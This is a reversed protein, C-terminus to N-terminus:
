GDARARILALELYGMVKHHIADTVVYTEDDTVLRLNQKNVLHPVGEVTCVARYPYVQSSQSSFSDGDRWIRARVTELVTGARDRIEATESTPLASM